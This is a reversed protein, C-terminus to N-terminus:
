ANACFSSEAFAPLERANPLTQSPFLCKERLKGLPSYVEMSGEIKTGSKQAEREM